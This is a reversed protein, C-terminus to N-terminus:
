DVVGAEREREREWTAGRLAVYSIPIVVMVCGRTTSNGSGQELAAVEADRSSVPNLSDDHDGYM